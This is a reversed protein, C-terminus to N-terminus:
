QLLRLYERMRKRRIKMCSPLKVIFMFNNSESMLCEPEKVANESGIGGPSLSKQTERDGSM